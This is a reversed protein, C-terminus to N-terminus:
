AAMGEAEWAPPSLPEGPADKVKRCQRLRRLCGQGRLVPVPSEPHKSADCQSTRLAAPGMLHQEEGLSPQWCSLLTNAAVTCKASRNLIIRRLKHCVPKADQQMQGWFM